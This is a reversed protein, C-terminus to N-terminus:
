QIGGTAPKPTQPKTSASTDTAPTEPKSSDSGATDDSTDPSTDNVSDVVAAGLDHAVPAKEGVFDDVKKVTNQVVPREWLDNVTTKIKEYQKRGAAAGVVYGAAFGLLIWGKAM